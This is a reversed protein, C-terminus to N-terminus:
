SASRRRSASVRGVPSRGHYPFLPVRAVPVGNMTERQLMRIRYGPYLRGSPWNPFGTLVSVDHGQEVLTEALDSVVSQPEPPYWQSLVLVKM